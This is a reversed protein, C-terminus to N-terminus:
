VTEVEFKSPAYAEKPGNEVQTRLVDRIRYM